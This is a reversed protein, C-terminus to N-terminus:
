RKVTEDPAKKKSETYESVYRNPVLGQRSGIKATDIIGGAIGEDIIAGILSKMLQKVIRDKDDQGYPALAPSDYLGQALNLAPASQALEVVADISRIDPTIGNKFQVRAARAMIDNKNTYIDVVGTIIQAAGARIALLTKEDIPASEPNERDVRWQQTRIRECVRDAALSTASPRETYAYRETVIPRAIGGERAADLGARVASGCLLTVTNHKVSHAKDGYRNAFENIEPMNGLDEELLILPSVRSIANRNMNNTDAISKPDTYPRKRHLNAKALPPNGSLAAAQEKSQRQADMIDLAGQVLRAKITDSLPPIDDGPPPLGEVRRTLAWGDMYGPFEDRLKDRAATWGATPPNDPIFSKEAM